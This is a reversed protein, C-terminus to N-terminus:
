SKFYRYFKRTGLALMEKDGESDGYVNIEKYDELEIQKKIRNVKEPGYCNPGNLKGTLRNNLVELKTALLEIGMKDTWPKIWNEPSASVVVIRNKEEISNTISTIASKRLILPLKLECFEACKNNFDSIPEGKFFNTLVQEKLNVNTIIGAYFLIIKPAVKIFGLYFKLKGRYFKLFEILTDKQTITGDFDYLELRM